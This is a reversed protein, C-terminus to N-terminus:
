QGFTFSFVYNSKFGYRLYLFFCNCVYRIYFNIVNDNLWKQPELTELDQVSLHEVGEIEDNAVAAASIKKQSESKMDNVIKDALLKRRKNESGNDIMWTMYFEEIMKEDIKSFDLSDHFGRLSMCFLQLFLTCGGINKEAGKGDIFNKVGYKLDNM